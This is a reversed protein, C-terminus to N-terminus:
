EVALYGIDHVRAVRGHAAGREDDEAVERAARARHPAQVALREKALLQHTCM